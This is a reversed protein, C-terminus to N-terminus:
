IIGEFFKLHPNHIKLLLHGRCLGKFKYWCKKCMNTKCNEFLCVHSDLGNCVYGYFSSCYSCLISKHYKHINQYCCLKRIRCETCVIKNCVTCITQGNCKCMYKSCICKIKGGLPIKCKPCTIYKIIIKSLDTILYKDLIEIINNEM